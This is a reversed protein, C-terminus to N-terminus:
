GEDARSHVLLLPLQLRHLHMENDWPEPLLRALWAPVRGTVVAAERASTFGAAIM